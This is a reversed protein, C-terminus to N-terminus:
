MVAITALSYNALGYFAVEVATTSQSSPIPQPTQIAPNILVSSTFTSYFADLMSDFFVVRVIGPAVLGIAGVNFRRHLVFTNPDFVVYCKFSLPVFEVGGSPQYELYSRTGPGPGPNAPLIREYEYSQLAFPPFPLATPPQPFTIQKHMGQNNSDQLRTHDVQFAANLVDFNAQMAVADNAPVNLPNPINPNWSTM